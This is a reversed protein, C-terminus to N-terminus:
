DFYDEKVRSRAAFMSEAPRLRGDFFRDHVVLRASPITWEAASDHGCADHWPAKEGSQSTGSLPGIYRFSPFCVCGTENTSFAPFHRGLRRHRQMHSLEGRFALPTMNCRLLISPSLPAQARKRADNGCICSEM